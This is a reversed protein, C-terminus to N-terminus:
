EKDAGKILTIWEPRLVNAGVIVDASLISKKHTGDYFRTLRIGVGKHHAVVSETNAAAELTGAAFAAANRHFAASVETTPEGTAPTASPPAIKSNQYVSFGFLNGLSAARLGATTGSHDARSILDTALWDASTETGIVANRGAEPARAGDLKAKADVLVRPTTHAFPRATLTGVGVETTAAALLKGLVYADVKTALADMAPVIFQTALNRVDFRYETDTLAFSVDYVKELKVQTKTETLDQLEIGTAHDFEKAEFTGPVYIDVTDGKGRALLDTEYDRSLLNFVQSQEALAVVGAQAIQTLKNLTHAM